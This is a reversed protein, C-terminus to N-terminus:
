RVSPRSSDGRLARYSLLLVLTGGLAWLFSVLDFELGRHDTLMQRLLGGLVAGLMGLLVNVWWKNDHRRDLADAIFGVIAGMILWGIFGM